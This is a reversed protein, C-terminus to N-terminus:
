DDAAREEAAAVAFTVPQLPAQPTPKKACSSFGIVLLCLAFPLECKMGHGQYNGFRKRDIAPLYDEADRQSLLWISAFIVASLFVERPHGYRSAFSFGFVALAGSLSGHAVRLVEDVNAGTVFDLVDSLKIRRRM